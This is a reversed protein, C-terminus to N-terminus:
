AADYNMNIGDQRLVYGDGSLQDNLAVGKGM